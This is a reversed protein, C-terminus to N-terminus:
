ALIAPRVDKVQSASPHEVSVTSVGQACVPNPPKAYANGSQRSATVSGDDSTVTITEQLEGVQMKM